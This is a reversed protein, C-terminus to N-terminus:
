LTEEIIANQIISNLMQNGRKFDKTGPVATVAM